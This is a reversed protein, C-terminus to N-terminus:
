RTKLKSVGFWASTLEDEVQRFFRSVWAKAKELGLFLGLGVSALEEKLFVYFWAKGHKFVVWDNWLISDYDDM